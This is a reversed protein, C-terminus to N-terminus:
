RITYSLDEGGGAGAEANTVALTQADVTVNLGDGASTGLVLLGVGAEAPQLWIFAGSDDPEAESTYVRVKESNLAEINAKFADHDYATFNRAITTRDAWTRASGNVARQITLTSGSVATLLVTEADPRDGGIVLLNPPEPIKTIDQVTVTTATPSIAGLTVTEPSNVFAPYMTQM